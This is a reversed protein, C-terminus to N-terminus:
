KIVSVVNHKQSAPKLAHISCNGTLAFRDFEQNNTNEYKLTRM